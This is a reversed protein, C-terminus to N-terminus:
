SSIEQDIEFKKMCMHCIRYMSNKMFAWSYFTNDKGKRKLKLNEKVCQGGAKESTKKIETGFM